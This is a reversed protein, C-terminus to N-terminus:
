PLALNEACALALAFLFRFGTRGGLCQAGPPPFTSQVMPVSRKCPFRHGPGSGCTAVIEKFLKKRGSVTDGHRVDFRHKHNAPDGQRPNRRQNTRQIKKRRMVGTLTERRHSGRHQVRLFRRRAGLTRGGHQGATQATARHLRDRNRPDLGSKRGRWQAMRGRRDIGLLRAAEDGIEQLAPLEAPPHRRRGPCGGAESSQM